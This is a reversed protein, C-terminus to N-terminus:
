FLEPVVSLTNPGVFFMQPEFKECHKFSFVSTSLSSSCVLLGTSENSKKIAPPLEPPLATATAAPDQKAYFLKGTM